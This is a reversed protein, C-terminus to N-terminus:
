KAIQAEEKGNSPKSPTYPQYGQKEHGTCKIHANCTECWCMGMNVNEEAVVSALAIGGFSFFVIVSLFSGAFFRNMSKRM